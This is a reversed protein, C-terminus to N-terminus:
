GATDVERGRYRELERRVITHHRELLESWARDGLRAAHRTSGVIDTVLVTALVRDAERGPRDGTLFEQIEDLVSDQDGVWPMHDEGSLEVFRAHPIQTAMWRGE